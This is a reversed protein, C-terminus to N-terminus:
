HPHTHPVTSADTLVPPPFGGSNSRIKLYLMARPRPSSVEARTKTRTRVRARVWSLPALCLIIRVVFLCVCERDCVCVGECVCERM